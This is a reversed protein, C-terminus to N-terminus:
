LRNELRFNAIKAFEVVGLNEARLRADIGLQNFDEEELYNRLTNRLTKRRQGFAAAVIKAFLPADKVLMENTPLPIM